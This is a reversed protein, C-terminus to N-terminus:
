FSETGKLGDALIDLMWETFEAITIQPKSKGYFYKYGKTIVDHLEEKNQASKVAAHLVEDRHVSYHISARGEMIDFLSSLGLRRPASYEKM